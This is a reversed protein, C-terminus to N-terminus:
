INSTRVTARSFEFKSIWWAFDFKQPPNSSLEIHEFIHPFPWSNGVSFFFYKAQNTFKGKSSSYFTRSKFVILILLWNYKFFVCPLISVRSSTFFRREFTFRCIEDNHFLVIFGRRIWSLPKMKMWLEVASLSLHDGCLWSKQLLTCTSQIFPDCFKCLGFAFLDFCM